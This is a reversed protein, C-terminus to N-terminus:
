SYKGDLIADPEAEAFTELKTSNENTLGNRQFDNLVAFWRGLYIRRDFKSAAIVCNRRMQSPYGEKWIESAKDVINGKPPVLWGTHRNVVYESPGQADYTLSPTGCAMSELPIYGFPEHTFPFFTFLANSYLDILEATTVRGLFAIHPHRVLDKEIYRTKAGFAKMKVGRDAVKKVVSFDTEKGFYTLVYDASPKTSSPRFEQCDIPPYIVDHVKVGFNAYMSACFKSNAVVLSSIKGMRNILRSDAIDIIPRLLDYAIRFGTNLEKKMDKLAISPPGQLYWISSPVSIVQSFNIIVSSDYVAQRSNLRFFAERGWTEFWLISLGSGKTALKAHLNIPNIGEAKLHEEVDRTMMPSMM